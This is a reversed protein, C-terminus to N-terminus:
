CRLSPEVASLVSNLRLDVNAVSNWHLLAVISGDRNTHVVTMGAREVAMRVGAAARAAHMATVPGNVASYPGQVSPFFFVALVCVASVIALWLALRTM